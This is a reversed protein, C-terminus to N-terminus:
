TRCRGTQANQFATTTRKMPQAEIVIGNTECLQKIPKTKFQQDCRIRKMVIKRQTLLFMRLNEIPGELQATTRLLQGFRYRSRDDTFLLGYYHGHITPSTMTIIDAHWFEGVGCIAKPEGFAAKSRQQKAVMCTTCLSAFNIRNLVIGKALHLKYLELVVAFSAHGLRQHWLLLNNEHIREHIVPATGMTAVVRADTKAVRATMWYMGNQPDREGSIMVTGDKACLRFIGKKQTLCTDESEFLSTALILHKSDEQFLVNNLRLRTTV